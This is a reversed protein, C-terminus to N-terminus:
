GRYCGDSKIEYIAASNSAAGGAYVYIQFSEGINGRGFAWVKVLVTDNYPSVVYSEHYHKRM